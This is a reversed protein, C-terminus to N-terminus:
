NRLQNALNSIRSALDDAADFLALIDKRLEDPLDPHLIQWLADGLHDATDYADNLTVAGSPRDTTSM